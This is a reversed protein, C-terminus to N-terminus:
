RQTSTFPWTVISEAASRSRERKEDAKERESRGAGRGAPRIRSEDHEALIRALEAEADQRTGAVNKGAYKRRGDV